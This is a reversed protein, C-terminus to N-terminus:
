TEVRSAKKKEEGESNLEFTIEMRCGGWMRMQGMGLIPLDRRVTGVTNQLYM